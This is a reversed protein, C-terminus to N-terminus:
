LPEEFVLESSITMYSDKGQPTVPLNKKVDSFIKPGSRAIPAYFRTKGESSLSEKVFCHFTKAGVEVASLLSQQVEQLAHIGSSINLLIGEPRSNVEFPNCETSTLRNPLRCLFLATLKVSRRLM